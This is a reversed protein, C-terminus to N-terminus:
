DKETEMIFAAIHKLQWYRDKTNGGFLPTMQPAMHDPNRKVGRVCSQTDNVVDYGYRDIISLLEAETMKMNM